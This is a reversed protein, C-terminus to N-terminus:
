QLCEAERFRVAAQDKPSLVPRKGLPLPWTVNLDPDNWIISRECEPMWSVTCRYMFDASETLTLFGHAFGSPIWLMHRNEESLIVGVWHGFTPSSRRVDVAVDFVAGTAVRALKGQLHKVQYHLGRVVHQKSRIHNDQAFTMDLGAAAFKREEWTELFFGRSDDFVDPRILVVDPIATPEFQM